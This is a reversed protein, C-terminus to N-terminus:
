RIWLRFAKHVEDTDLTEDKNADALKFLRRLRGPMEDESLRNDDDKDLQLLFEEAKLKGVEREDVDQGLRDPDFERAVDLYGILMEEWTQDGWRIQSDPDPNNLNDESNDYAAICKM